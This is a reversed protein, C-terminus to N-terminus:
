NHYFYKSRWNFVISFPHYELCGSASTVAISTHTHSRVEGSTCELIETVLFNSLYSVVNFLHEEQETGQPVQSAM